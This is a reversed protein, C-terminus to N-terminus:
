VIRQIIIKPDGGRIEYRHTFHRGEFAGGRQNYRYKAQIIKKRNYPADPYILCDGKTGDKSVKLELFEPFLINGRGGVPEHPVIQEHRLIKYNM